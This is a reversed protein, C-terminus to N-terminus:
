MFDNIFMENKEENLLESCITENIEPDIMKIQTLATPYELNQPCLFILEALIQDSTLPTDDLLDPVFLFLLFKLMM